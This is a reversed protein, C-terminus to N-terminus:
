RPETSYTYILKLLGLKENCSYTKSTGLKICSSSAEAPPHNFLKDWRYRPAFQGFFSGLYSPFNPTESVTLIEPILYSNPQGTISGDEDILQTSSLSIIHSGNLDIRGELPVEKGYSIKRAITAISKLQAAMNMFAYSSINSLRGYFGAFHVRDIENPGDYLAHGEYVTLGQGSTCKQFQSADNNPDPLWIRDQSCKYNASAGVILSDKVTHHFALRFGLRNDALICGVCMYEAFTSTRIWDAIDTCHHLVLRNTQMIIREGQATGGIRPEIAGGGFKGSIPDIAFNSQIGFRCSHAVNDDFVGWPSILPNIPLFRNGNLPIYAALFWFCSNESGSAVNGIFTNNANTIWFTTPSQDTPIVDSRKIFMGLNGIFQNGIEIADELFYAHGKIDFCVNNELLIYNSAHVTICRNRSRSIAVGRVLQGPTSRIEHFHIPYRRLKGDHGGQFIEIYQLHLVSMETAMIQGGDSSIANVQINRTLLAVEAREDLTFVKWTADFTQLDGYHSYNAPINLRIRNGSIEAIRFEEAEDHMYGTPGIAIRDGVFWDNEVSRDLQIWTDGINVTKSIKVFSNLVQRGQMKILSYNTASIFNFGLSLQESTFLDTDGIDASGDLLFEVRNSYKPAFVTLNGSSISIANSKIQVLSNGYHEINFEGRNIIIYKASIFINRSSTSNSTIQFTSNQTINLIGSVSLRAVGSDRSGRLIKFDGSQIDLKEVLIQVNDSRPKIVLEGGRLSIERLSVSSSFKLADGQKVTLVGDNILSSNVETYKLDVEEVVVPDAATASASNGESKRNLQFVDFYFIAAAAAGILVL